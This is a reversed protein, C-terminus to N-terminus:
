WGDGVDCPGRRRGARLSVHSDCGSQGSRAGPRRRDGTELISGGPPRDHRGPRLLRFGARCNGSGRRSSHAEFLREAERARIEGKRSCPNMQTDENMPRGGTRGLMYVSELVVLRAGTGGAAAILNNIYKPIMNAWIHTSYPPNMCHYVTAAGRAADRCFNPDAADGRMLEVGDPAGASRKVVRVRLGREGLIRALPQGVQGGGFIVHLEDPM